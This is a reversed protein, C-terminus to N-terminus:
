SGTGAPLKLASRCPGGSNAWSAAARAPRGYNTLVLEVGKDNAADESAAEQPQAAGVAPQSINIVKEQARRSRGALARRMAYVAAGSTSWTMRCSWYALPKRGRQAQRQRRLRRQDLRHQLAGVTDDRTGQDLFCARLRGPPRSLM